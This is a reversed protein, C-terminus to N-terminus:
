KGFNIISKYDLGYFIEGTSSNMYFHTDFSGGSPTPFSGTTYKGFGAPIAPNNLEAPSIIERAGKIADKTLAGTAKSLSNAQKFTLQEALRVANAANAANSQPTGWLPFTLCNVTKGCDGNLWDGANALWDRWTNQSQKGLAFALPTTPQTVTPKPKKDPKVARVTVEELENGNRNPIQRNFSDAFNRLSSSSGLHFFSVDRRATIVFEDLSGGGGGNGFDIPFQDNPRVLKPPSSSFGSPDVFSLPNNYVYSYRNYNQTNGPETLYPDASLFRGTIADQVRGNLHTLGLNGLADQGTYGQRSVTNINTLDGATPSGSWTLPDRRMGFASFNESVYTTGTSSTIRAISGQHDELLYRTTNVGSTTRSMIAVTQSGVMISHRYDDVGGSTVKEVLEGVYITTETSSGNVYVQKWRQNNGDYYLSVTEGNGAISTPYNSKNWGIASGNRTIANGNADYSYTFSSSGAQTVAHKKIPDYTWSANSAVDTRNTINGMADYSMDLNTVSNLQSYDLRYVNDYYFNETLGLTNNQRQTVNGVKDFLYAENQVGTGGGIGSQISNVWGTVADFSRNTVIGNGLTEQTVQGRSNMANAQWFVTTANFDKVQQLLGSQYLYQLKLRYSSTSTPYTATDMLGTTASYAYDYNYTADSVIQRQSLRGKNDYTYNETSGGTNSVSQLQGINFSAAANGWTWTTTGDGSVSRTLPRSLADYTLTFTSANADTYSVVEGLANPTYNWTGLDMDVTQTQFANMGYAYSASFLANSGSDVVTKLSGFADYTFNQYYGNADQSRRMAGNPDTMKTTLRGQPDTTLTTMGQYAITTTQLTPNAASIPRQTQVVRNIADYSFTNWYASCSAADCPATQRSQRGLADYQVGVRSYGGSLNKSKSVISRDLQDLYTWDDRLAAGSTDKSTAIVVMKNIATAGNAPDGNVCGGSVSACDNYSWTTSTNDSRTELTKRGFSDYQWSTVLGNPDTQSSQVGKSYDYGAQTTQGLANSTSVPLQGNTGWNVSTTRAAMGIGTVIQSNVNGFSDYGIDTTVKYTASSPEVIQQNMRCNVYDPTFGTTRTIAAVGTASRTVAVQTPLGLCWNSSADPAITSVVTDIWSQSYTPSGVDNDTTTKSSSLRNGYNDYTFAQSTSTILQGNKAGGLEWRSSSASSPFAFYRQNNATADLAVNSFASVSDAILTANDAQYLSQRYQAGTYPFARSFYDYAYLGNRSDYTRKTMFGAFGRGQLNMWAGYYWFSKLYTGAAGDTATFQNVVYLPGVYNQYPYTADAYKTYNNRVISTYTPSVSNGNGDAVSGLLDPPAGASSHPYYIVPNAGGQQGGRCGLDDQGDGDFDATFYACSSSYPVSTSLLASLGNGTSGFIGVTSGNGVLIDTRGDGDWDLTTLLTGSFYLAFPVSGNCGSINVKNDWIFDTCSDNNWSVAYPGAPATTSTAALTSTYTTGNSLLELLSYTWQGNVLQNKYALLDGRGDGNFDWSRMPGAAGYSTPNYFIVSCNACSFATASNITTSFSISGGTSSNFRTNSTYKYTTSSPEGAVGGSTSTTLTFYVADPLGDGNVDYFIVNASGPVVVQMNTGSFGSGNWIYYWYTGGINVVFGHQGNGLLDATTISNVGTNVPAGYGGASGFTVYTNTGNNYTLDPYGDGNFDEKGTSALPANTLGTIATVDTGVQGNQYTITTPSLCDTAASDACEQIQTLRNRGTTPSAQYFLAYKKVTAGSYAVTISSLLNTNTVATGALYAYISSQPVNSTYAFTMTYNYTTSQYASRTWSIVSPVAAGTTSAYTVIMTNGARDTVQSLLWTSATSTGTALIQSNGGNGYLYSRGDRGQLTFYAPGNGAVGVATIKSFNAIETQYTSGALGYSGGTLRLRNGDLCFGDTSALAVPTSATDQAYTKECRNISSLGSIAWGVGVPGVGQNSGYSLQIRPQVSNPGPPVWIPIQYTAAGTSSVDFAGPTRGTAAQATALSTVTTTALFANAAYIVWLKTRM